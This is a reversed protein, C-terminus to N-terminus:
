ADGEYLAVIEIIAVWGKDDDPVVIPKAGLAPHACCVMGTGSHDCLGEELSWDNYNELAELLRFAEQRSPAERVFAPSDDANSTWVVTFKINPM